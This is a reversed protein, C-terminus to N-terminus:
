TIQQFDSGPAMKPIPLTRLSVSTESWNMQRLGCFPKQLCSSKMAWVGNVTCVYSEWMVSGFGFVLTISTRSVANVSEQAPFHWCRRRPQVWYSSHFVFGLFIHELIITIYSVGDKKLLDMNTEAVFYGKEEQGQRLKFTCFSSLLKLISLFVYKTWSVDQKWDDWLQPMMLNKIRQRGCAGSEILPETEEKVKYTIELSKLNLSDAKSQLHLRVLSKSIHQNIENLSRSYTAWVLRLSIFKRRYRTQVWMDLQSDYHGDWM